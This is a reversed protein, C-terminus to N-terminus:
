KLVAKTIEYGSGSALIDVLINGPSERFFTIGQSRFGMELLETGLIIAYAKDRPVRLLALAMGTFIHLLTWADVTM